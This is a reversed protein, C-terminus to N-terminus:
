DRSEMFSRVIEGDLTIQQDRSGKRMIRRVRALKKFIERMESRVFKMYEDENALKIGKRGSIIVKEYQDGENISQIDYTLLRRTKSNHYNTTFYAPYLLITDTTQEATTWEDGRALLFNYLAEQRALDEEFTYRM